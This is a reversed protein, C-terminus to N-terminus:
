RNRHFHGHSRFNKTNYGDIFMEFPLRQNEEIKGINQTIEKVSIKMDANDFSEFGHKSFQICRGNSQHFYQNSKEAIITIFTNRM